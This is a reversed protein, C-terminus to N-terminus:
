IVLGDPLEYTDGDVKTPPEVFIVRGAKDDCTAFALFGYCDLLIDAYAVLQVFDQRRTAQWLLEDGYRDLLWKLSKSTNKSPLRQTDGLFSYFRRAEALCHPLVPAFTASAAMKRLQAECEELPMGRDLAMLACAIVVASAPSGAWVFYEVSINNCEEQYLKNVRKEARTKNPRKTSCALTSVEELQTTM